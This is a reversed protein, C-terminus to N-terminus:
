NRNDNKTTIRFIDKAVGIKLEWHLPIPLIGEQADEKMWEMLRFGADLILRDRDKDTTPRAAVNRHPKGKLELTGKYLLAVAGAPDTKYLENAEEIFAPMSETTM